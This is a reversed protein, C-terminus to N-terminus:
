EADFAIKVQEVNSSHIAKELDTRFRSLTDLVDQIRFVYLIKKNSDFEVLEPPTIIEVIEKQPRHLNPFIEQLLSEDRTPDDSYALYPNLGQENLSRLNDGLEIHNDSTSFRQMIIENYENTGSHLTNYIRDSGWKM